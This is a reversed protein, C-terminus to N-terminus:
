TNWQYAYLKGARYFYCNIDYKDYFDCTIAAMKDVECINKDCFYLTGMETYRFERHANPLM